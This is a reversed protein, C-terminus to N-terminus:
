RRATGVRRRRCRDTRVRGRVTRGRMGGRMSRRMSRRMSGISRGGEMEASRVLVRVTEEMGDIYGVEFADRGIIDLEKRVGVASPIIQGRLSVPEDESYRQTLGGELFYRSFFAEVVGREADTVMSTSALFSELEEERVRSLRFPVRMWESGYSSLIEWTFRNSKKLKELVFYHGIVGNRHTCVYYRGAPATSVWGSGMPRICPEKEKNEKDETRCHVAENRYLLRNLTSYRDREIMRIVSRAREVMVSYSIGREQIGKKWELLTSPAFPLSVLIAYVLQWWRCGVTAGAAGMRTVTRCRLIQGAFVGVAEAGEETSLFVRWSDEVRAQAMQYYRNM